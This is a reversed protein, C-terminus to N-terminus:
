AVVGGFKKHYIVNGTPGQDLNSRMRTPPSLSQVAIMLADKCDDHPPFQMVLEDELVQCNGGRYHWVAGNTYIPELTAQMKELKTGEHRTPKIMDVSLMIGNPRLYEEKLQKIIPEAASVGEIIVKRFEWKKFSELLYRYYDVISNTQFRVVDLVYYFREEDMGLVVIVSYDSRKGVTYSLDMSAVINLRRAQYHWHGRTFKVHQRDYYQFVSRSIGTDDGSNPDNYYQAHFQTKDIYKARKTALVRRDFGFWKGDRRQQRPWLFEGTGDGADEVAREFIEYVPRSGIVYGEDDYIDEEIKQMEGYLDNPHYRTGVIWEQADAGEISSLLSYQSFVKNRGEETYANEYVVVDDLAAIDCHLGTISTTLGAIFITPDRVGEAKRKPHDVSIETNTWKERKSEEKNIMEPWYKMYKKSTFIDKMFKLQKEALGSTASIYLVRCDPNNTIHWVVRYALYRSKGHDRPLLTVQHNLAEERTWWSLLERHVGGMVNHPAVLSIFTELDAEAKKRIQWEQPTLDKDTRM